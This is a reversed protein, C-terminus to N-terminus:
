FSECITLWRYALGVFLTRGTLHNSRITVQSIEKKHDAINFRVRHKIVRWATQVIGLGLQLMPAM